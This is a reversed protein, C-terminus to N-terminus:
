EAAKTLSLLAKAHIVAAEKTLHILGRRFMKNCFSANDWKYKWALEEAMPDVGWYEKDDELPERVPEPVDYEGIRITKPPAPEFPAKRYDYFMCWAPAFKLPQWKSDTYHKFEWHKWPQHEGQMLEQTYERILEQHIYVNNEPILGFRHHRIVAEWFPRGQESASWIFGGSSTSAIADRQFVEADRKNGQKVQEDLMAEIVHVPFNEIDGYQLKNLM